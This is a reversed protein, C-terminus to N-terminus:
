KAALIERYVAAVSAAMARDSFCTAHREFASSRLSEWNYRGAVVDAIARALADPDGATALVGDQGHRIAEPVGPVRTAVVPVGAAMAELVVMPLGEGFLSPLVLLDMKRLEAGVQRTFGTWAVQENLQLRRVQAAIEAEYKPSEFTGVTRLNVTIGQRRLIAMADLLVEIGKRPRFLAVMGLTWWGNPPRREPLAAPGPVGNVVVRIRAPDIGEHAIHDAMAQSVAVVRSVGRLSLREILGNICNACRRTSDQSAPSHAHYVMPVGTLHAAIGGILATRVTHCHLIRYDNARVIEAVRRATLLDFKTRMRVEYLPADRAERMADFVDLKVCAFGVSFGCEPLRKALLDQVREAGAYHEGNILHLVRVTDIATSSEGGLPALSLPVAVAASFGSAADCPSDVNVALTNESNMKTHM